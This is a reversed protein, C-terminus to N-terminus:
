VCRHVESYTADRESLRFANNSPNTYPSGCSACINSNSYLCSFHAPVDNGDHLPLASVSNALYAAAALIQYSYLLQVFEGCVVQM